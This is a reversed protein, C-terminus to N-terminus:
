PASAALVSRGKAFVFSGGTAASLKTALDKRLEAVAAGGLMTAAREQRQRGSPANVQIPGAAAGRASVSAVVASTQLDVVFAELETEGGSYFGGTGTVPAKRGRLVVVYRTKLAKQFKAEIDPTAERRTSPDDSGAPGTWSLCTKLDQPLSLDIPTAAETDLLHEVTMFDTNGSGDEAFVPGPVLRSNQAVALAPIRGHITKLQARLKNMAPRHKDRVQGVTEASSGCGAAWLMPVVLLWCVSRAM